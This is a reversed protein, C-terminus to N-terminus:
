LHPLNWHRWVSVVRLVFCVVGGCTGAVAKSLGLKHGTVMVMAGALAATAYVDARLVLPVQALFIDRITGGGVGTITGLLVAMFRPMGYDLAKQTGAIAFLALGGADLGIVLEPPIQRLFGFTAFVTVGAAFAVAGYRWDRIAQPPIAGILLDRIVGGGLATAFSLVLMGFLDLHGGIAALAGEAAFVFTGALDVTIM